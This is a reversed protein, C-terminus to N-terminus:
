GGFGLDAFDKESKPDISCATHLVVEFPFDFFQAVDDWGNTHANGMFYSGIIAINIKDKM